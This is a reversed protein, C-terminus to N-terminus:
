GPSFALAVGGLSLVTLPALWAVGFLGCVFVAMAPAFAAGFRLQERSTQGRPTADGLWLLCCLAAWPMVLALAVQLGSAVGFACGILAGLAGLLGLTIGGPLTRSLHALRTPLPLALPLPPALVTLLGQLALAVLLPSGAAVSLGALPMLLLRLPHRILHLWARWLAAQFAGKRKLPFAFRRAAPVGDAGVEPLPLGLRKAGQRTGEVRAHLLSLPPIDDSWRQRWLRLAALCACFTLLPLWWAQVAGLLPLLTLAALWGVQGHPHLKAEYTLAHILTKGTAVFPLSLALWWLSPFWALVLIGIGLGVLAPGALASALPSLLAVWPAAPLRLLVEDTRSLGLAPRRALWASLWWAVMSAAYVEPGFPPAAFRYTQWLSFLGALAWAGLYISMAILGGGRWTRWLSAVQRQLTLKKLQWVQHEPKNM